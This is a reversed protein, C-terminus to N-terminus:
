TLSSLLIVATVKCLMKFIGLLPGSSWTLLMFGLMYSTCLLCHGSVYCRLFRLVDFVMSFRVYFAANRVCCKPAATSM